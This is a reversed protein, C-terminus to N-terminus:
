HQGPPGGDPAPRAGRPPRCALPPPAGQESANGPPNNTAAQDSPPVTRRPPPALCTGTLTDNNRGTFSCEAGATKGKCAAIDEPPPVRRREAGGPAGQDGGSPQALAAGTLLSLGIFAWCHPRLFLHMNMSLEEIHLHSGVAHRFTDKTM